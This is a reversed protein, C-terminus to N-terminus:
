TDKSDRYQKPTCQVCKRFTKCFITTNHFQLQEAIEYIKLNTTKLLRQAEAIRLDTTYQTISKSTLRKFLHAAYSPSIHLTACIDEMTISDWARKRANLYEELQTSPSVRAHRSDAEQAEAAFAIRLMQLLCEMVVAQPFRNRQDDALSKSAKRFLQDVAMAQSSNSSFHFIFRGSEDLAEEWDARFGCLEMILQLCRQSIRIRNCICNEPDEQEIAYLQHSGLVVLSATYFPTLTDSGLINGGSSWFQLIEVSDDDWSAGPLPTLESIQYDCQYILPSSNNEM